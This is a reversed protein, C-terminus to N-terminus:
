RSLSYIYAALLHAKADGLFEKHAPMNGQRGLSVTELIRARAGGHLWIDDTLNPAGLQQNGKGDAGHCVACYQAFTGMGKAVASVDAERGSLSVVYETVETIEKEGILGKWAPMMGARGNLITTKITAPDGGYLWDNDRLNPFGRAGGADSGHCTTCYTSYLRKGIELAAPNNVVAMLEQNAYQTFIPDYKEGANKIEEDYQRTQSWGLIGAFSGLGPYLVLYIIGFVLTIYFLNLWWKPLPNNYESLNEDWVHDTTSKDEGPVIKKGGKFNAIFVFLAVISIVTIIFIFIGWFGSTFDTM